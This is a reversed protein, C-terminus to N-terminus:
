QLPICFLVHAILSYYLMTYYTELLTLEVSTVSTNVGETVMHSYRTIDCQVFFAVRWWTVMMSTAELFHGIELDYGGALWRCQHGKVWQRELSLTPDDTSTTLLLNRLVNKSTAPMTTVQHITAKKHLTLLFVKIAQICSVWDMTHPLQTYLPKTIHPRIDLRIIQLCRLLTHDYM